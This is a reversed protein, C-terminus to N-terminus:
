RTTRVIRDEDADVFVAVTAKPANVQRVIERAVPQIRDTLLRPWCGFLLLAGLLLAFPLRHWLSRM